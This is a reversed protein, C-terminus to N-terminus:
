GEHGGDALFAGLVRRIDEAGQRAAVRLTELHSLTQESMGAAFNTIVSLAAVKMKAHRALVVEPVTSMGVADAGLRGAARIEAPTEFSPGAFWIYVGEHLTVGTAAAAALLRRRLAPDYADVMDVFRNDGAEGFLPSVGTFNIHDTVLMTSGPAMEPRLSGAANTLLLTACGLGALTRVPVKMVDARGHEYYHARGHLLAVPTGALHGLVLRGAHGGVGPVPFGPLEGYSLTAVPVVEDALGGLGTGLVLGVRPAFGSACSQALAVCAQIPDIMTPETQSMEPM